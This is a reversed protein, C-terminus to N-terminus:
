IIGIHVALLTHATHFILETLKGKYDCLSSLSKQPPMHPCSYIFCFVINPKLAIVISTHQIHVLILPDTCVFNPLDKHIFTHRATFSPPNEHIAKDNWTTQLSM